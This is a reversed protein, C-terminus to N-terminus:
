MVPLRALPTPHPKNSRAPPRVDQKVTCRPCAKLFPFYKAPRGGYDSGACYTWGANAIARVAYKASLVLDFLAPLAITTPYRDRLEVSGQVLQAYTDLFSRVVPGAPDNSLPVLATQLRTMKSQIPCGALCNTGCPLLSLDLSVTAM